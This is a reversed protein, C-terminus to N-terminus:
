KVDILEFTTYFRGPYPLFYTGDIRTSHFCDETQKSCIQKLSDNQFLYIGENQADIELQSHNQPISDYLFRVGNLGNKIYFDARFWKGDNANNEGKEYSFAPSYVVIKGNEFHASEGFLYYQSSKSGINELVLRQYRNGSNTRLDFGQHLIFNDRKYLVELSDM